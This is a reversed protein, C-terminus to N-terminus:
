GRGGSTLDATASCAGDGITDQLKELELRRKNGLDASCESPACIPFDRFVLFARGRYDDMSVALAVFSDKSNEAQTAERPTETIGGTMDRKALKPEGKLTAFDKCTTRARRKRSNPV